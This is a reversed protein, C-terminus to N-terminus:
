SQMARMCLLFNLYRVSTILFVYAGFTPCWGGGVCYIKEVIVAGYDPSFPYRDINSFNMDQAHGDNGKWARNELPKEEVMKDLRKNVELYHFHQKEDSADGIGHYM